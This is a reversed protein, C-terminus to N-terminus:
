KNDLNIGFKIDLDMIKHFYFKNKDDNIFIKNFLNKKLLREINIIKIGNNKHSEYDNIWFITLFNKNKLNICLKYLAILLGINNIKNFLDRYMNSIQIRKFSICRLMKTIQDKNFNNYKLNSYYKKLIIKALDLDYEIAYTLLIDNNTIRFKIITNLIIKKIFHNFEKYEINDLVYKCIKIKLEEPLNFQEM